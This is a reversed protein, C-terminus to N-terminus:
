RRHYYNPKSFRGQNAFQPRMQGMMQGMPPMAMMQPQAVQLMQPMAQPRSAMMMAPHPAAVTTMMPAAMHMGAPLGAPMHFGAITMPPAQVVQHGHMATMQPLSHAMTAMPPAATSAAISAAQAAAAQQQAASAAQAQAAAQQQQAVSSPHPHHSTYKPMSARREELSIDEPPHIIRSTASTTAILAPKKDSSDGYAPFTSKGAASPFLPRGSPQGNPGTPQGSYIVPSPGAVGPQGGNWPAGPVAYTPRVGPAVMGPSSTGLETKAIKAMPGDDDDDGAAGRQSEHNKLDQDPIGEMGYIEIEINSRNPLANPVKDITQKHVQMCHISLGPGTYLKKHCIHCKFHKAKQHQILIKEDDFERNCYWCWPKSQKKKKRGM